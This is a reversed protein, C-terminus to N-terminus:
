ARADRWETNGSTRQRLPIDDPLHRNKGRSPFNLPYTIWSRAHIEARGAVAKRIFLSKDVVMLRIRRISPRGYVRNVGMPNAWLGTWERPLAWLMFTFDARAVERSFRDAEPRRHMKCEHYMRSSDANRKREIIGRYGRRPRSLFRVSAYRSHSAGDIM